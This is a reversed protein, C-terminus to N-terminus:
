VSLLYGASLALKFPRLNHRSYKQCNPLVCWHLYFLGWHAAGTYFRCEMKGAVIVYKDPHTLGSELLLGHFATFAHSKVVSRWRFWGLSCVTRGVVEGAITTQEASHTKSNLQLPHLITIVNLWVRLCSFDNQIFKPSNTPLGITPWLILDAEEEMM